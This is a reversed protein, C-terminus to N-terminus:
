KKFGSFITRMLFVVEDRSIAKVFYASALYILAVVIFALLPNGSFLYLLSGVIYSVAIPTAPRLISKVEFRIGERNLLYIGSIVRLLYGAFIAVAAGLMGFVPVSIVTVMITGLSSLLGVKMSAKANGIGNLVSTVSLGLAGFFVGLSLIQLSTSAPTYLPSILGLVESSFLMAGLLFPSTVALSLRVVLNLLDSVGPKSGVSWQESVTPLLATAVSGVIGILIGFILLAINYYAVSSLSYIGLLMIGLQTSLTGFIGSIYNPFSFALVGRMLPRNQGGASPNGGVKPLCRPLFLLYGIICSSITGIAVASLIGLAKLSFALVLLLVAGLKSVAVISDGILCFEMRQCGQYGGNLSALIAQFPVLIAAFAMLSGLEPNQYIASSIPGSFLLLLISAIIGVGLGIKISSRFVSKSLDFRKQANYESVYKSIAIPLGLTAFVNLTTLFAIVTAALGVDNPPVIRAVVIWFFAGMASTLLLDVVLYISGSVVKELNTREL